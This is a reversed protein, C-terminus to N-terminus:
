RGFFGEKAVAGAAKFMAGGISGVIWIFALICLIGEWSMEAFLM